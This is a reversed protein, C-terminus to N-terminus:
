RDAFFKEPGAQASFFLMNAQIDNGASFMFACPIYTRKPISIFFFLSALRVSILNPPYFHRLYRSKQQQSDIKGCFFFRLRWDM